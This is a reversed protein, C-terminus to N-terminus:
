FHSADAIDEALKMFDQEKIVEAAETVVGMGFEGRKLCGRLKNRLNMSQQGINLHTYPNGPLAMAVICARVVQAPTLVGLITAVEDGCAPQGNPQRTYVGSKARARLALMPGNYGDLVPAAKALEEAEKALNAAEEAQAEIAEKDLQEKTPLKVAAIDITDQQATQLAAAAERAKKTARPAKAGKIKMKADEVTTDLDAALKELYATKTSKAM